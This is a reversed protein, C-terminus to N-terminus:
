SWSSGRRRYQVSVHRRVVAMRRHREVNRMTLVNDAGFGIEELDAYPREPKRISAAGAGIMVFHLDRPSLILAAVSGPLRQYAV